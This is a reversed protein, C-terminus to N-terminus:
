AKMRSSTFTVNKHWFYSGVMMFLSFIIQSIIPDIGIVRVLFPLAAFNLAYSVLYFPIFRLFEGISRQRTQFVAIKYTLFAFCLSLAQAVLLAILYERRFYPITFLLIPYISFGFVTNIAGAVVFRFPQGGRTLRAGLAQTISEISRM